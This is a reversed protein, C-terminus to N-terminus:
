NGAWQHTPRVWEGRSVSFSLAVTVNFLIIIIIIIRVLTAYKVM